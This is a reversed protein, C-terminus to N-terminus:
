KIKVFNRWVVENITEYGLNEYVKIATKNKAKLKNEAYM